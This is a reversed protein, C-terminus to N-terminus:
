SKIYQGERSTEKRESNQIFVGPECTLPYLIMKSFIKDDPALREACDEVADFYYRLPMSRLIQTNYTCMTFLRSWSEHEGGSSSLLLVYPLM